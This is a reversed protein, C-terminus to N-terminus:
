GINLWNLLDMMFASEQSTALLSRLRGLTLMVIDLKELGKGDCSSGGGYNQWYNKFIRLGVWKNIHGHGAALILSRV